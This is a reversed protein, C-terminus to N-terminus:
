WYSGGRKYVENILMESGRELACGRTGLSWCDKLRDRVWRLDENQDKLPSSDRHDMIIILEKCFSDAVKGQEQGDYEGPLNWDYNFGVGHRCGQASNSQLVASGHQGSM